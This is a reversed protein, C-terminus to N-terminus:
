SPFYPHLSAQHGCHHAEGPQRTEELLFSQSRGASSWLNWIAWSAEEEAWQGGALGVQQAKQGRHGHSPQLGVPLVEASMSSNTDECCKCRTLPKIAEGLGNSSPVPFAVKQASAKTALAGDAQELAPDM